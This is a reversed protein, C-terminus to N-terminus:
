EHFQTLWTEAPILQYFIRMEFSSRFMKMLNVFFQAVEAQLRSQVVLAFCELVKAKSLHTQAAFSMDNNAGQVVLLRAKGSSDFARIDAVIQIADPLDLSVNDNVHIYIIGNDHQYIRGYSTETLEPM